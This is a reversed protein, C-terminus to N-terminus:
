LNISECYTKSRRSHASAIVGIQSARSLDRWLLRDSNLIFDNLFVRSTEFL